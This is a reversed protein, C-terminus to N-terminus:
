RYLKEISIFEDCYYIPRGFFGESKKKGKFVINIKQDYIDYGSLKYTLKSYEERSTYVSIIEGESTKLKFHPKRLLENEYLLNFLNFLNKEVDSYEDVLNPNDIIQKAQKIQENSLDDFLDLVDIIKTYVEGSINENQSLGKFSTM